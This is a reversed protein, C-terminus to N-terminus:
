WTCTCHKRRVVFCSERAVCLACSCQPGTSSAARFCEAGTNRWGRTVFVWRTGTFSWLSTVSCQSVRVEQSNLCQELLCVVFLLWSHSNPGIQVKLSETYHCTRLSLRQWRRNIMLSSHWIVATENNSCNESTVLPSCQPTWPSESYLLRKLGAVWNM